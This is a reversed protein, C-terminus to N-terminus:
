HSLVDFAAIAPKPNRSADFLGWSSGIDGGEYPESKWRVDFGEFAVIAVDQEDALARVRRWFELQIEPTFESFGGSPFGTEKILLPKTGAKRKLAEIQNGLWAVADDVDRLRHHVPHVNPFLFEVDETLRPDGYDEIQETTTIPLSTAQRLAEVRPGLTSWDYRTEAGMGENGVCISDILGRRALDLANTIETEDSPDWIGQIVGRFGLERAVAPIRELGNACGYTVLGDFRARLVRLDKRIGDDDAETPPSTTPDYEVPSYAVWSLDRIKTQFPEAHAEIKIDDIYCWVSPSDRNHAKDTVVCFGGVLNSLDEDTLDIVKKSWERGAKFYRTSRAFLMSDPFRGRNVGGVKGEIYADTDSRAWFSLTIRTGRDVGLVDYVNVGHEDGWSAGALFYVGVWSNARPDFGFKICTTGSYPRETCDDQFRSGTATPFGDARISYHLTPTRTNMM